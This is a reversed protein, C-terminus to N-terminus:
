LFMNYESRDVRYVKIMNTGTKKLLPLGASIVVLDGENIYDIDKIKKEIDRFCEDTHELGEITLVTVGWTLCLTRTVPNGKGAVAIIPPYPRYRATYKATNGSDTVCVILKAGLMDSLNVASYTIGETDTEIKYDLDSRRLGSTQFFNKEANKIIRGMFEVSKLPYKGSASEGSLMVASAGDLVANAVDSSEARTPRPNRIMSDLMQTAVIVPKGLLNCKRIIRKQVTPVEEPNIEVGLDGRAIMIGYSRKIIEDIEELAEPKEIKAIIDLNRGQEKMINKVLDIDGAKRVFSLAVFDVDLTLIFKLDECDKETLAPSKIDVNPLNIGKRSTLPGGVVVTTHVNKGEVKDVKLELLGDDLLIRNGAVVEEALPKYSTCVRDGEGIFDDTSIIFQRGVELLIGPEKIKGVRIKPGQLDALIGVPSELDESIQRIKQVNQAHQEHTGHSFNLRFVNVGALILEKIKDKSAPGLTAVIKTKRFDHLNM